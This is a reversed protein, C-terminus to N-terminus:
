ILVPIVESRGEAECCLTEVIAGEVDHKAEPAAVSGEARSFLVGAEFCANQHCATAESLELEALAEADPNRRAPVLDAPERPRGRPPALLLPDCTRGFELPLPAPGYARVAETRPLRRLIGCHKLAHVPSGQWPLPALERM